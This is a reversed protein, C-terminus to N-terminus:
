RALAADLDAPGSFRAVTALFDALSPSRQLLARLKGGIPDTATPGVAYSGRFAFYAQNLKRINYGQEVLIKRQAEMYAEAKEVQGEALLKDVTLRTQRMFPGFEFDPAASAHGTWDRRMSLPRPWSAPRVQDPYFRDMVRDAIEGGVISAVTENMTRMAGSDEYNWGLPHFMLYTHTWEHAVTDIVWNLDPYAVVMTPYSSFGGTGDVLTSKNLEGALEGEIREMGSVPLSPDLYVGEEVMIRERPSIILYNPSETFQFLVPPLVGAFTGLGAEDLVAAVQGQIIREVAPRRQEQTARLANLEAQVPKAAAAPDSVNPDAYIREIDANLRNVRGVDEIYQVVLASQQQPALNEGPRQVIDRVKQGIAQVEWAALQFREGSVARNILLGNRAAGLYGDTQIVLALVICVVLLALRRRLAGRTAATRWPWARPRNLVATQKM